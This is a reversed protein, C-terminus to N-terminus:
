HCGRVSSHQYGLDWAGSKTRRGCAGYGMLTQGYPLTGPYIAHSPADDYESKRREGCLSRVAGETAKQLAVFASGYIRIRAQVIDHAGGDAGYAGYGRGSAVSVGDVARILYADVRVKRYERISGLRDRYSVPDESFTLDLRFQHPPSMRERYSSAFAIGASSFGCGILAQEATRAAHVAHYVDSQAAGDAVDHVYIWVLPRAQQYGRETGYGGAPTSYLEARHGGSTAVCGFLMGSFVGLTAAIRVLLRVWAM